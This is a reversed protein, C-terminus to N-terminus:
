YFKTTSGFLFSIGFWGGSKRTFTAVDIPFNASTGFWQSRIAPGTFPDSEKQIPLAPPYIGANIAFEVAAGGEPPGDNYPARLVGLAEFQGTHTNLGILIPGAPGQLTGMNANYQDVLAQDPLYITYELIQTKAM